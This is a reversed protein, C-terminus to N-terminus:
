AKWDEVSLLKYLAEEVTASIGEVNAYHKWHTQCEAPNQIRIQGCQLHESKQLKPTFHTERDM